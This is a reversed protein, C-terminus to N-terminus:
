MEPAKLAADILGAANDFRGPKGTDMFASGGRIAEVSEMNPRDLPNLLPTNDPLEDNLNHRKMYDSRM